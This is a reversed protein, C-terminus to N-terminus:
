PSPKAARKTSWATKIQWCGVVILGLALVVALGPGPGFSEQWPQPNHQTARDHLAVPSWLGALPLIGWGCLLLLVARWPLKHAWPAALLPLGVALATLAALFLDNDATGWTLWLLLSTALVLFLGAIGALAGFASLLVRDLSGVRIAPLLCGLVLLVVPAVFFVLITRGPWCNLSYLSFDATVQGGGPLHETTSYWYWPLFCSAVGLVCLFVAWGTATPFWRGWRFPEAPQLARAAFAEKVEPKRLVLFAWIGLPLGIFWGLTLPLMALISSTVALEYARLSRMRVAGLVVALGLPLGLLGGLMGLGTPGRADGFPMIWWVALVLSASLAVLGSLL